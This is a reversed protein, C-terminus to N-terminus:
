PESLLPSTAVDAQDKAWGQLEVLKNTNNEADRLVTLIEPTCATGDAFCAPASPGPMGTENARRPNAKTAALLSRYRSDTDSVREELAEVRRDNIQEQEKKVRALNAKQADQAAKAATRYNVVTQVHAAKEADRLATMDKLDALAERKGNWFWLSACLLVICGAQWPHAVCWKFAASIADKLWGLGGLLFKGAMLFISM